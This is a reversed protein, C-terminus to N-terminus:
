KSTTTTGDPDVFEIQEKRVDETVERNETVQQTGLRVREVAVVDKDVVVDEGHLVVEHEEESLEPGASADGINADTIPERVLTAEEHTVPVTVTQQETVIHKRLRARGTEVKQVGVNLREESRTMADDTTPGSTDHGNRTSTTEDRAGTEVDSDTTPYGADATGYGADAVPAADQGTGLADDSVTSTDTTGSASGGAYYDYLRDTEDDNLEGDSEVNPAGKVTDKDFPVQVDDGSMQARDLPIFSESTGFFGTKVTAWNPNGDPDVYVQGISGIKDDDTGRVTAGTLRDIDNSTFGM